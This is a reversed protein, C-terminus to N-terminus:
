GSGFPDTKKISSSTVAMPTPAFKLTAQGKALGDWLNTSFTGSIVQTLSPRLQELVVTILQSVSTHAESPTTKPATGEKDAIRFSALAFARYLPDSFSYRGSAGDFRIVAGREQSELKKLFYALNSLPYDKHTTQIREFLERRTAGNDGCGALAEIVIRSNDYRSKKKVRFARDFVAKLTDSAEALYQTIAVGLEQKSISTRESLTEVIGAANCINLCLHHCVAAVGSSYRVIGQRVDPAITFNLLQEGKQIIQLIEADSMVPVHIEAVRNRMEPDAEVVQRATDVAGIAVIKVAEFEDAVDMFVKMLQALHKKHASDVKHFDELVWCCKAAGLFRALAQGTLQPPLVRQYKESGTRETGATIKLKIGHYEAAMEPPVRKNSVSAETKYLPALQDFADLLLQEISMGITCRSTVHREYLQGLKNALLTTKGCGSHGYVVVQKGPTRLADVLRTNIAEREVFTLRAPKTPTFVDILRIPEDV